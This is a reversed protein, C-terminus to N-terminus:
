SLGASMNSIFVNNRYLHAATEAKDPQDPREFVAHMSFNEWCAPYYCFYNTEMLNLRLLGCLSGSPQRQYQGVTCKLRIQQLHVFKLQPSGFDM